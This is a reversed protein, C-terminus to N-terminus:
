LARAYSACRSIVGVSSGTMGPLQGYEKVTMSSSVVVASLRSVAFLLTSMQKILMGGCVAATGVQLVWSRVFGDHSGDHRITYYNCLLRHQPGLDLQWWTSPMTSSSGSCTRAAAAVDGAPAPCGRIYRPGAYSTNLFQGSVIAQVCCVMLLLIRELAAMDQMSLDAGIEDVGSTRLEGSLGQLAWGRSCLAALQQHQLARVPAASTSCVVCVVDAAATAEHAVRVKPDTYRSPPSSAKIEVAKSLVPNVWQKSGYETAIHHLVGNRDGDYVYM